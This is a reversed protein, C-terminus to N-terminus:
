RDSVGAAPRPSLRRRVPGPPGWPPVALSGVMSPRPYCRIGLRRRAFGVLVLNWTANTITAVVAVAVIGGTPAAVLCGAVLLAAASSMTRAEFRENNTLSVVYGCPGSLAQVVIGALLIVMVGGAARFDDGMIGLVPDRLPILLGVLALTPVTSVALARDVQRQLGDVDGAAWAGAIRPAVISETGTSVVRALLAIRSAVGYLGVDSRTAFMALILLDASGIVNAALQATFFRRAAPRWRALDLARAPGPDGTAPEALGRPASRVALTAAVGGAVGVSVLLAAMVLELGVARGLLWAVLLVAAVVGPQLLQDIVSFRVYEHQAQLIAQLLRFTAWGPITAMALLMAVRDDPWAVLGVGAAVAAVLLAGGVTRTTAHRRLGRYLDWRQGVAYDPLFRIVTGQQGRNPLMALLEGWRRLTLYLGFGATGLLQALVVQLGYRGITGLGAIVLSTAAALSLKSGPGTLASGLRRPTSAM